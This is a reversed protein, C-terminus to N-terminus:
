FIKHLLSFRFSGRGLKQHGVYPLLHNTVVKAGLDHHSGYLVMLVTKMYYRFLMVAINHVVLDTQIKCNDKM